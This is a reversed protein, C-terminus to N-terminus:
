PFVILIRLSIHPQRGCRKMIKNVAKLYECWSHGLLIVHLIRSILMEDSKLQLGNQSDHHFRSNSWGFGSHAKSPAARDRTGVRARQEKTGSQLGAQRNIVWYSGQKNNKSLQFLIGLLTVQPFFQSVTEYLWGQPQFAHSPAWNM